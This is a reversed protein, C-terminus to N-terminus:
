GAKSGGLCPATDPMVQKAQWQKETYCHLALAHIPNGMLDGALGYVMQHRKVPSLGAFKESVLLLNFHSDTAGGGHKHSDNELQHHSVDLPTVVAQILQEAVNTM